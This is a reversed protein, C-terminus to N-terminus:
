RAPPASCARRRHVRQCDAADLSTDNEFSPYLAVIVLVYVGLGLAYGYLSRRRLRLDLRTIEGM